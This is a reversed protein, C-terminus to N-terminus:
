LERRPLSPSSSRITCPTSLSAETRNSGKRSSPESSGRRQTSPVSPFTSISRPITKPRTGIGTVTSRRSCMYLIPHAYLLHFDLNEAVNLLLTIPTMRDNEDIIVCLSPTTLRVNFPILKVWDNELDKVPFCFNPDFNDTM